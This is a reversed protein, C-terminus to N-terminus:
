RGRACGSPNAATRPHVGCRLACSGRVVCAGAPMFTGDLWAGNRGIVSLQFQWTAAVYSCPRRARMPHDWTWCCCRRRAGVQHLRAASLCVYQRRGACLWGRRRCAMRQIAAGRPCHVCRRLCPCARRRVERRPFHEASELIARERREGEARGSESAPRACVRVGRVTGVRAGRCIRTCM